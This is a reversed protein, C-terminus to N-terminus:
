IKFIGGFAIVTELFNFHQSAKDVGERYTTQISNMNIYGAKM